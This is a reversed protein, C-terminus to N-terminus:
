ASPNMASTAGPSFTPIGTDRCAQLLREDYSVFIVEDSALYSATAHHVSDLTRLGLKMSQIASEIITKKVPIKFWASFLERGVQSVEESITQLKGLVEIRTLDSTVVSGRTDLSTIWELMAQSYQEQIFLKLIASSELYYHSM